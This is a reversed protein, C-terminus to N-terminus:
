RGWSPGGRGLSGGRGRWGQRPGRSWPHGERERGAGYGGGGRGGGGGGFDGREGGGGPGSGGGGGRNGSWVAGKRGGPASNPNGRQPSGRSYGAPQSGGRTSSGWHAGDRRAGSGGGGGRDRKAGPGGQGGDQGSDFTAKKRKAKGSGCGKEVMIVSDALLNYVEQRPHIPDKGWIETAALGRTSRAPDLVRGHRLGSTFLYDKINGCCAALDERLKQYFDSRCRNAVHSKDPCCGDTVFRAMPGVIVINNGGAAAWLPECLKLIALQGDKDALVLDGMVHFGGDASKRPPAKSGDEGQEFFFNNDLLQFIVATYRKAGLEEKIHEAMVLVSKKTARWNNSIVFGTEINKQQLADCLRKANSSGVVLFCDNGRRLEPGPNRNLIPYSDLDMALNDQLDSIISSIINEEQSEALEKVGNPLKNNSGVSWINSPELKSISAPLRVRSSSSPQSGGTGNELIISLAVESSKKMRLEEPLTNTVWGTLAFINKVLECSATGGMLLPPAATVYTEEGLNATLRRKATVLDEIYATLGVRSLHTASFLMVISGLSLKNDGLIDLLTSCLDFLSGHELRIIRICKQGSSSPLLPPYSQDSLIVVERGINGNGLVPHGEEALCGTCLKDWPNFSFAANMKSPLNCDMYMRVVRGDGTSFFDGEFDPQDGVTLDGSQLYPASLRRKNAACVAEYTRQTPGLHKKLEEALEEKKKKVYARARDEISVTDPGVTGKSTQVASGGGDPGEKPHGGPGDANNISGTELLGSIGSLNAAWDGDGKLISPATPESNNSSGVTASLETCSTTEMSEDGSAGSNVESGSDDEADSRVDTRMGEEEPVTAGSGSM